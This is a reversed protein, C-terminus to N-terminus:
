DNREPIEGIITPDSANLVTWGATEFKESNQEQRQNLICLKTTAWALDAEAIITGRDNLLDYGLIPIELNHKIIKKLLPHFKSDSCIFLEEFEKEDDTLDGLPASKELIEGLVEANSIDLIQSNNESGLAFKPNNGDFGVNKALILNDDKLILYNKGEEIDNPAAIEKREMEIKIEPYKSVPCGLIENRALHFKSGIELDKIESIESVVSINPDITLKINFLMKFKLRNKKCWAPRRILNFTSVKRIGGESL